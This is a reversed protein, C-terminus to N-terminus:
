LCVKKNKPDFVHPQNKKFIQLYVYTSVIILHQNYYKYLPVASKLKQISREFISLKEHEFWVNRVHYLQRSNIILYYKGM